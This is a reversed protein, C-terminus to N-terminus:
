QNLLADATRCLKQCDKLTDHFVKASLDAKSPPFQMSFSFESGWDKKPPILSEISPGEDEFEAPLDCRHGDLTRLQPLLRTIQMVYKESRCIPNEALSLSRIYPIRVLDSVDDFMKIANNSLKIVKLCDLTGLGKTSTISNSSADLVQLHSLCRVSELSSLANGSVNLSVLNPVLKLGDLDSLGCCRLDLHRVQLLDFQGSAKHLLAQDVSAPM